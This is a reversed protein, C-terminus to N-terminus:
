FPIKRELARSSGFRRHAHLPGAHELRRQWGVARGLQQFAHLQLGHQQGRRRGRLNAVFQFDFRLQDDTCYVGAGGHQDCINGILTCNNLTGSAVGGGISWSTNSNVVCNNLTTWAAGGGYGGYNGTLTCNNLKSNAAAGGFTCSNGTLVCNFLTGSNVAGGEDGAGNGVLVCNTLVASPECYAGGGRATTNGNTLTFGSLVVGNTLYICRNIGGGDIVTQAPGSVGVISVPLMVAVRNTASAVVRNGTTYIGNTVFVSDGSVAADVADQINTAATSWNMYPAIPNTSNLNVYHTRNTANLAAVVSTVAGYNNTVVVQYNGLNAPQVNAINLVNTASGTIQSNDSLPSGGLRWQYKLPGTGTAMVSFIAAGSFYVTQGSPQTGIGPRLLVTLTAVSSTARGQYNTVVVRFNGADSSIINSITLTANTAGGIHTSNTLNTGNFSWHYILSGGTATVKFVANSGALVNTSVPQSTINPVAAHSARPFLAALLVVTLILWWGARTGDLLPMCYTTGLVPNRSKM